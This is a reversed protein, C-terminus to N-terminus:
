IRKIGSGVCIRLHVQFNNTKNMEKIKGTEDFTEKFNNM